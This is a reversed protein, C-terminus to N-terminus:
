YALDTGVSYRVCYLHTLELISYVLIHMCSSSFFELNQRSSNAIRKYNGCM